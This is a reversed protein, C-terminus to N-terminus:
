NHDDRTFRSPAIASAPATLYRATAIDGDVMHFVLNRPMGSLIDDYDQTVLEAINERVWPPQSPRIQGERIEFRPLRTTGGTACLATRFRYQAGTRLCRHADIGGAARTVSMCAQGIIVGATTGMGCTPPGIRGGQAGVTSIPPRGAALTLSRQTQTPGGSTMMVPAHVTSIQPIGAARMPSLVAWPPAM